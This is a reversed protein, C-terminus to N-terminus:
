MCGGGCVHVDFENKTDLSLMCCLIGVVLSVIGLLKAMRESSTPNAVYLMYWLTDKPTVERLKGDKDRVLLVHKKM